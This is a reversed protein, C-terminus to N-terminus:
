KEKVQVTNVHINEMEKVNKVCCREKEVVYIVSRMIMAKLNVMAASMVNLRREAMACIVSVQEM